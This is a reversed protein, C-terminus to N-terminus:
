YIDLVVFLRTNVIGGQPIRAELILAAALQSRELFERRM